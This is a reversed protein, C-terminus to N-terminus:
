LPMIPPKSTDRMTADPDAKPAPAEIKVEEKETPKEVPQGNEVIVTEKAPAAPKKKRLSAVERELIIVHEALKLLKTAFDAPTAPMEKLENPEIRNDMAKELTKIKDEVDGMKRALSSVQTLALDLGSRVEAEERSLIETKDQDQTGNRPAPMEPLPDTQVTPRAPNNLPESAPNKKPAEFEEEKDEEPIAFEDPEGKFTLYKVFAVVGAISAFILIGFGLSLLNDALIVELNFNSM